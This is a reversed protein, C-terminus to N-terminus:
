RPDRLVTMGNCARHHKRDAADPSPAAPWRGRQRHQDPERPDAEIEPQEHADAAHKERGPDPLARGPRRDTAAREGDTEDTRHSREAQM